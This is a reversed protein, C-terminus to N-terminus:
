VGPQDAELLHQSEVASTALTKYGEQDFLVTLRDPEVSMVVGHGWERHRVASNVPFPADAALHDQATGAECTDCNGCPHPLQEGFYGLLFQRRCGTSEAYGRVMEIRSRILRQHTESVEVARHVAEDPSLEDDLYELRGDETTGVAGAQELLNVARTRKAAPAEVDDALDAARVPAAREDLAEAVDELADEPARSATLFTQLHLDEPRHFLYAEAPDGDRGARGIQQYYSDLSEPASAHVVFRVDPKDIGMGFASTAVVVDLEDGLFQEHVRKRDAAKMGAHYAAVRHGLQELEGAYYEADKRSAVYVLGGRTAPDAMLGSVRVVVASRKRGDDSEREVALRLNPRDFSAVVEAADRLGLRQVIDRRVPLAATATLALVPPHGLREIATGLRLYDPRFDHGWASVCHAEDVVFLGVGLAALEDLVEDKALQEPSLFLYEADGERVADWAHRTEGARQASNVAVAEPASSDEIGEMQDRQLALLPSVVLTPGDILLAPVQYIASKGAGTPLVALADRGAMMQEMAELQEPHLEAWGFTEAAVQQLAKSWESM